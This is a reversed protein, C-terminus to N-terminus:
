EEITIKVEGDTVLTYGGDDKVIAYGKYIGNKDATITFQNGPSTMAIKNDNFMIGKEVVNKGFGIFEAMISNDGFIDIIIKAPKVVSITENGYVATM